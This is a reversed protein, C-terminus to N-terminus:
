QQQQQVERAQLNPNGAGLLLNALTGTYWLGHGTIGNNRELIAM